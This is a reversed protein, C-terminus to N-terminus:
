FFSRSKRRGGNKKRATNEHDKRQDIEVVKEPGHIVGNELPKGDQPVLVKGCLKQIPAPVSKLAFRADDLCKRVEDLQGQLEELKEEHTKNVQKLKKNEERVGAVGNLEKRVRTIEKAYALNAALAVEKENNVRAIEEKQWALRLRFDDTSMHCINAEQRALCYAFELNVLDKKTKDNTLNLNEINAACDTLAARM